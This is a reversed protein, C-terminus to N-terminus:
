HPITLNMKCAAIEVRSRKLTFLNLKQLSFSICRYTHEHLKARNVTAVVTGKQSEVSLARTMLLESHTVLKVHHM